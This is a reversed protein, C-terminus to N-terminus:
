KKGQLYEKFSELVIRGKENKFPNLIRESAREPHPMLGIVNGELNCVGAINELSGNPNSDPTEMGAINCYKFVIQDNDYLEKLKEEEIYYNGEGHATPAQFIDGKAFKRSAPSRSTVVKMSIWKCVFRMSSNRLLAGPLLQAEALIQFGNCIGLIPKREKNMKKVEKMAPSFAAIIGSRLHDGYSFGGPLIAGEFKSEKFDTHWVLEANMHMVERAVHYADMDCNSGPFQIIAIRPM